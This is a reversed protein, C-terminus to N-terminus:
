ATIDGVARDRQDALMAERQIAIAPLYGCAATREVAVREGIGPTLQLFLGSQCGIMPALDQLQVQGIRDGILAGDSKEGGTQMVALRLRLPSFHQLGAARM